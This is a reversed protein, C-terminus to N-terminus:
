AIVGMQGENISQALRLGSLRKDAIEIFEPNLEIGIYQRGEELAVLGTTGAGFFPDLVTGNLPSGALVCPRILDPPYSSFHKGGKFPKTPVKWVTRRSRTEGPNVAPEKIGEHDFYYRGSKSFLFITEHSRTCRDTVSEPVCIPKQWIIENRLTWGDDQLAFAVRWPIGILDKHKMGYAKCNRRPCKEKGRGRLASGEGRGSQGGALTEAPMASGGRDAAYSDGLIIWLTGDDRLVRRVERFVEVLNKVYDGPTQEIGLEGEIGTSRQGWYPPSTICTNVSGAPLTRLVELNDGCYIRSIM